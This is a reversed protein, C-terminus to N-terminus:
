PHLPFMSAGIQARRRGDASREHALPALHWRDFSLENRAREHAPDADLYRVSLPKDGKPVAMTASSWAPAARTFAQWTVDIDFPPPEGRDTAVVPAESRPAGSAAWDNVAERYWGYSWWLGTLSM